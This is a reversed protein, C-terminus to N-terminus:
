GKGRKRTELTWEAGSGVETVVVGEVGISLRFVDAEGPFQLADIPQESRQPHLSKWSQQRSNVYANMQDPQESSLRWRPREEDDTLLAIRVDNVVRQENVGILFVYCMQDDVVRRGLLVGVVDTASDPSKGGIISFQPRRGAVVTSISSEAHSRAAALFSRDDLDRLFNLDNSAHGSSYGAVASQWQPITAKQSCSTLVAAAM